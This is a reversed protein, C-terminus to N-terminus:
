RILQEGDRLQNGPLELPLDLLAPLRTSPAALRVMREFALARGPELNALRTKVVGQILPNWALSVVREDIRRELRVLHLGGRRRVALLRHRHIPRHHDKLARM